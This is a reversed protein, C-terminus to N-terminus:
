KLTDHASKWALICLGVWGVVVFAIVWIEQKTVGQYVVMGTRAILYTMFGILCAWFLLLKYRRGQHNDEKKM